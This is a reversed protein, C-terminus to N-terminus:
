MVTIGVCVSVQIEVGYHYRGDTVVGIWRIIATSYEKHKRGSSGCENRGPLQALVADGVKLGVGWELKGLTSYVAYRDDFFFFGVNMRLSLPWILILYLNQGLNNSSSKTLTPYVDIERESWWTEVIFVV